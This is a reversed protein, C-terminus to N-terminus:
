RFASRTTPLLLYCIGLLYAADWAVSVVTPRNFNTLYLMIDLAIVVTYLIIALRYVYGDRRWLGFGILYSFGTWLALAGVALEAALLVVDGSAHTLGLLLLTAPCLLGLLLFTAFAINLVALIAIGLPRRRNAGPVSYHADSIPLIFGGSDRQDM